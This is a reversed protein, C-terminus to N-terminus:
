PDMKNVTKERVAEELRLAEHRLKEAEEAAAAHAAEELAAIRLAEEAAL